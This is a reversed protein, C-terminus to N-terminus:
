SFNDLGTPLELDVHHPAMIQTVQCHFTRVPETDGHQVPEQKKAAPHLHRLEDQTTLLECGFLNISMYFYEKLVNINNYASPLFQSHKSLFGFASSGSRINVLM